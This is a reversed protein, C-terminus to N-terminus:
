FGAQLHALCLCFFSQQCVKILKQFLEVERSKQTVKVIHHYQVRMLSGCCEWKCTTQKLGQYTKRSLQRGAILKLCSVTAPPNEEIGEYTAYEASQMLQCDEKQATIQWLPRAKLTSPTGAEQFPLSADCKQLFEKKASVIGM